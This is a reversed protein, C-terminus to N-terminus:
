QMARQIEAFESKREKEECFSWYQVAFTPAQRKPSISRLHCNAPLQSSMESIATADAVGVRVKEREKEWPYTDYEAAPQHKTDERKQCCLVVICINVGSCYVNFSHGNRQRHRHRRNSAFWRCDIALTLEKARCQQASRARM